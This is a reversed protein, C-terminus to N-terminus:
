ESLLFFLPHYVEVMSLKWNQMPPIFSRIKFTLLCIMLIPPLRSVLYEIKRGM